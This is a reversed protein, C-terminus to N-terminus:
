AFVAAVRNAALFKRRFRAIARANKSAAIACCLEGRTIPQDPSGSGAPRRSSTAQITRM